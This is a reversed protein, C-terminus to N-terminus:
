RGRKPLLFETEGVTAVPEFEEFLYNVLPADPRPKGGLWANAVGENRIACPRPMSRLQDVVRQQRAEDLLVMWPGPVQPKPPELSSWLYLSNFGPYSVFISCRHRHLLDVLQRYDPAAPSRMLQAGHQDIAPLRGYTQANNLAPRAVSEYIFNGLLAASAVAVVLGATQATPAGGRARAWVRLSGLGDAICLAGVPIVLVAAIGVQSGPVPYVQLTEAVALSPLLIRLFRKFPDEGGAPPIAAVWLLTMPLVLRVADPGFGFPTLRTAFLWIALGALIRLIGPWPSLTAFARGRLQRVLVAGALAAVAWSFAMVPVGLPVTVADRIRLAENVIGDYVDGIGPGTVLLAAIMMGMAAAVWAAFTILWDGLIRNSPGPPPREASSAVVIAASVLVQFAAFDLIEGVDLDRITIAVPMALFGGVVLWRLWRCRYLPEWALVAGLATAAVAFIGLNIKTLLLAAVFLGALAASLMVRRPPGMAVVLLLAALLLGALGHPHMPENVLVGLIAFAMVMGTAGLLLSGTLRQVLVGYLGSTLVWVALVTLRSSDTTIDIGTLAALGGFLEFYFPGYPTYVDRYLADGETFARLMTLLTGEDDYPAFQTFIAFFGAVAIAIALLGYIVAAVWPPSATDFAQLWGRGERDGPEVM